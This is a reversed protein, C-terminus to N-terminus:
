VTLVKKEAIKIEYKSALLLQLSWLATQKRLLHCDSLQDLFEKGKLFMFLTVVMCTAALCQVNDQSLHMWDVGEFGVFNLINDALNFYRVATAYSSKKPM